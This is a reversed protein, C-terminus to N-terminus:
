YQTLEDAMIERAKEIALKEEDPCLGQRLLNKRRVGFMELYHGIGHPLKGM